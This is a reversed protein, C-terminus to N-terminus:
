LSRRRRLSAVEKELRDIREDCLRREENLRERLDTIIAQLADAVPDSTNSRRRQILLTTVIGGVVVVIVGALGWWSGADAGPTVQAFWLIVV